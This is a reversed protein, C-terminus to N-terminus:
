ERNMKRQAVEAIKRELTAKREKHFEMLALQEQQAKDEDRDNNNATEKNAKPLAFELLKLYLLIKDKPKLAHLEKSISEFENTVFQLITERLTKNLANPTGKQRGGTKAQGTQFPM